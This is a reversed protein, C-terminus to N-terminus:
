FSKQPMLVKLEQKIETFWDIAFLETRNKGTRRRRRRERKVIWARPRAGNIRSASLPLFSSTPSSFLDGRFSGDCRPLHLFLNLFALFRKGVKLLFLVLLPFIGAYLACKVRNLNKTPSKMEKKRRQHQRSKSAWGTVFTLLSPFGNKRPHPRWVAFTRPLPSPIMKVLKRVFELFPMMKPLLRTRM